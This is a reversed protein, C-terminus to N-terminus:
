DFVIRDIAEQLYDALHPIHKYRNVVGRLMREAEMVIQERLEENNMAVVPSVYAREHDDTMVCVNGIHSVHPENPDDSVIRIEYSRILYRAEEERHLRAAESDDWTFCTHLPADEPRADEVVEAPTVRGGGRRKLNEIRQGVVEAKIPIRFGSRLEFRRRKKGPVATPM